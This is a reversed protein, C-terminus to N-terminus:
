VHRRLRQPRAFCDNPIRQAGPGGPAGQMQRCYAPTPEAAAVTLPAQQRASDAHAGTAMLVAIRDELGAAACVFGEERAQRAAALAWHLGESSDGASLESRGILSMASVSTHPDLDLSSHLLDSAQAQAEDVRGQAFLTEALMLRAEDFGPNERLALAFYREAQVVRSQELEQMGAGFARLSPPLGNVAALSQGAALMPTHPALGVNLALGLALLASAAFTAIFAVPRHRRLPRNWRYGLNPLTTIPELPALVRRLESVAQFLSQDQVHTRQWVHDILQSKSLVQGDHQLFFALLCATKPRLAIDGDADSLTLRRQDFRYGDFRVVETHDWQM